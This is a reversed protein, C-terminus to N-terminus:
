LVETVWSERHMYLVVDLSFTEFQTFFLETKPKM